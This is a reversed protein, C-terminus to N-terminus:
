DGGHNGDDGDSAGDDFFLHRRAARKVV